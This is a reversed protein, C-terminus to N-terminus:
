NHLIADYQIQIRKTPFLKSNTSRELFILALTCCKRTARGRRDHIDFTTLTLAGTDYHPTTLLSTDFPQRRKLDPLLVGFIQRRLLEKAQVSKPM